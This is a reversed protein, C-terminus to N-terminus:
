GKRQSEGGEELEGVGASIASRFRRTERAKGKIEEKKGVGASTAPETRYPM